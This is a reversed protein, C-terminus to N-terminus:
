KRPMGRINKLQEPNLELNTEIEAQIELMVGIKLKDVDIKPEIVAENILTKVYLGIDDLNGTMPNQCARIIKAFEVGPIDRVKMVVDRVVIQRPEDSVYLDETTM